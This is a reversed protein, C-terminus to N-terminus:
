AAMGKRQRRHRMGLGALALGMLAITSPEPVTGTTPPPTPGTGPDNPDTPPPLDNIYEYYFSIPNTVGEHIAPSSTDVGVCSNIASFSNWNIYSSTGDNCSISASWSNIGNSLDEDNDYIFILIDNYDYVTNTPASYFFGATVSPDGPVFACSGWCSDISNDITLNYAAMSDDEYLYSAYIMATANAHNAGLLFIPALLFSIIIKKM